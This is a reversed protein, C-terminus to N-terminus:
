NNKKYIQENPISEKGNTKYHNEWEKIASQNKALYFDRERRWDTYTMGRWKLYKELRKDREKPKKGMLKWFPIQLEEFLKKDTKGKGLPVKLCEYCWTVFKTKGEKYEWKFTKYQGKNTEKCRDCTIAM